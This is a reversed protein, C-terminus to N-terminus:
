PCGKKQYTCEYSYFYLSGLREAIAKAEREWECRSPHPVKSTKNILKQIERPFAKMINEMAAHRTAGCGLNHEAAYQNYAAILSAADRGQAPNRGSNECQTTCHYEEEAWIIPYFYCTEPIDGMRIPNPLPICVHRFTGVDLFARWPCHTSEGMVVRISPTGEYTMHVRCKAGMHETAEVVFMKTYPCTEGNSLKVNATIKYKCTRDCPSEVEGPYWRINKIDVTTCDEDKPVLSLLGEPSANWEVGDVEVDDCGTNVDVWALDSMPTCCTQIPNDPNPVTLEVSVASIKATVSATVEPCGERDPTGTATFVVDHCGPGGPKFMFTAVKGSGEPPDAGEPAQWKWSVTLDIEEEEGGDPICESNETKWGIKGKTVTHPPATFTHELLSGSGALCDTRWAPDAGGDLNIKPEEYVEEWEFLPVTTPPSLTEVEWCDDYIHIGEKFVPALPVCGSSTGSPPEEAWAALCCLAVWCWIHRKQM